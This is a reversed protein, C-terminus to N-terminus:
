PTKVDLLELEFILVAGGPIVPPAGTLGYGLQYPIYFKYKSGKPMLQLGEVWGRVVQSVGMELPQGRNYSNEFETGDILLGRYHAVFIDSIIPKPGDGQRLVEYQLGSATTTVEPRKGNEVLFNEGAKIVAEAKERAMKNAYSRLIGYCAEPKLLLSDNAFVSAIAKATLSRNLGTMDQMILSSAMNIGLAYGASDALNKLIISDSVPEQDAKKSTKGKKDTKSEEPEPAPLMSDPLIMMQNSYDNLILFCENEDIQSPKGGLRDEFARKILQQNIAMMNRSKLSSAVDVGLAYGASDALNKLQIPEKAPQEKAGKKQALCSICCFCVLTLTSVVLRMM